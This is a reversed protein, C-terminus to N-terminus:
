ISSHRGIQNFQNTEDWQRGSPAVIRRPIFLLQHIDRKYFAIHGSPRVSLAYRM